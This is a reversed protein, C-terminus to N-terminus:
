TNRQFILIMELKSNKFYASKISEPLKKLIDRIEVNCVVIGGLDEIKKLEQFLTCEAQQGKFDAQNRNRDDAPGLNSRICSYYAPIFITKQDLQRWQPFCRNLILLASEKNYLNQIKKQCKQKRKDRKAKETRRCVEDADFEEVFNKLWEFSSDM